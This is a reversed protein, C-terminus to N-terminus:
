IKNMDALKLYDIVSGIDNSYEIDSIIKIFSFLYNYIVSKKSISGDNEIKVIFIKDMSKTLDKDASPSNLIQTINQHHKTGHIDYKNLQILPNTFDVYLYANQNNNVISIPLGNLLNDIDTHSYNNIYEILMTIENLSKWLNEEYGLQYSLSEEKHYWEKKHRNYYFNIKEKLM